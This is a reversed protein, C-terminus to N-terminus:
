ARVLNRVSVRFTGTPFLCTPRRSMTAAPARSASHTHWTDRIEWHEAPMLFTRTVPGPKDWADIPSGGEMMVCTGRDVRREPLRQRVAMLRYPADRGTMDEAVRRCPSRMSRASRVAAQVDASTECVAFLAPQNEVAENWVRRARAYDDDGWPVVRGQMKACNVRRPQIRISRNGRSM